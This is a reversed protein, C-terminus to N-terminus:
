WGGGGGGGGGGGSSGGSGGSSSGPATSSSSIAGSFSGSLNSVFRDASWDEALPGHYWLPRRRASPATAAAGAAQAFANAWVVGAGLALAFPLYTDFVAQQSEANTQRRLLNGDGRLHQAFGEWADLVARGERTPAKLLRFFLMNVVIMLVLAISVGVSVNMAFVGLGFVEGIFFPISFATIFLAGIAAVVSRERITRTWGTVVQIGLATCGVTWGSLWVCMFLGVFRAEGQEFLIAGVLFALTVLFGPVRWAGNTKFYRGHYAAKLSKQLAAIAERLVRHNSQKLEITNGASFLAGALEFEEPALVEDGAQDRVIHYTGNRGEEQEIRLYGKTAMSVLAVMFTDNDFGMRQIYRLAAPSLGPPPTDTPLVRGRSPDIGVLLWAIVYYVGLIVLGGLAMVNSKGAVVYDTWHPERVHGKPFKVGITLGQNPQLPMTTSFHAASPGTVEADYNTDQEGQYGTYGFVQIQDPAIADPLHVTVEAVDMPFVWGNGTVNWYLEDFDSFFGMQKSTVYTFTYTYEGPELFVNEHGFYTRIGNEASETHYPEPQGDRTVELIEFGVHYPVPFPLREHRKWYTTPFDRYIGRQIEQGLARVRITETVTLSADPNVVIDSHFHIIREDLPMEVQSPYEQASVFAALGVVMVYVYTRM